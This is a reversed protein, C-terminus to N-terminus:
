YGNDVCEQLVDNAMATVGIKTAASMDRQANLNDLQISSPGESRLVFHVPYYSGSQPITEFFLGKKSKPPLKVKLIEVVSPFGGGGVNGTQYLTNESVRIVARAVGGLPSFLLSVTRPIVDPNELSVQVKYLVGYNGKLSHSAAENRIFPAAGVPIEGLVDGVVYSVARTRTPSDYIQATSVQSMAAYAAAPYVPDIVRSEFVMDVDSQCEFIGSVIEGPKLMVDLLAIENKDVPLVRRKQTIQEWYRAVAKHGVFVEDLSPGAAAFLASLTGKSSTARAVIVFNLPVSSGNKHHYLIRLTKHVPVQYSFLSVPGDISEPNNSVLLTDAAFTFVAMGVLLVGCLGTKFCFRAFSCTTM